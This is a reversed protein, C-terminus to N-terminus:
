RGQRRYILRATIIMGATGLVLKAEFVWVSRVGDGPIMSCFLAFLAMALGAAASWRKGARFASAYIYVYPLFGGILMLSVLAQYAARMTDGYQIAVLLLSSVAGLTVISVHPTAWRPHIRGFAAPLLHDVGAALPLRSVATGIGGFQGVASAMVLIGILPGLWPVGLIGAATGGGEALGYLESIKAPPLVVLLALTASAYFAVTFASAIWAARPLTRKPDRIEAGMLGALEMGSCAYAFVAWVSLTSWNWAPMLDMRTASGRKTWVLAAAVLLVAGLM